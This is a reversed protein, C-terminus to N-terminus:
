MKFALKSSKSTPPLLGHRHPPVLDMEENNMCHLEGMNTVTVEGERLSLGDNDMGINVSGKFAQVVELADHWHCPYRNGGRVFARVLLYRM